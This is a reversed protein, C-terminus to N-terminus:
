PFGMPIGCFYWLFNYIYYLFLMPVRFFDLLFEMLCGMTIQYSDGFFGISNDYFDWLFGISIGYVDMFM